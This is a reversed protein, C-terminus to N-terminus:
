YHILYAHHEDFDFMSASKYKIIIFLRLFEIDEKSAHSGCAEVDGDNEYIKKVIEYM